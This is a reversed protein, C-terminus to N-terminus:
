FLQLPKLTGSRLATPLTYITIAECLTVYRILEQQVNEKNYFVIRPPQRLKTYKVTLGPFDEAHNKIFAVVSPYRKQSQRRIELVALPYQKLQKDKPSSTEHCCAQCGNLLSQVEEVRELAYKKRMFTDLETCTKCQLIEADFGQELCEKYLESTAQIVALWATYAFLLFAM